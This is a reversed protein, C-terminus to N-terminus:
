GADTNPVITLKLQVNLKQARYFVVDEQEFNTGRVKLDNYAEDLTSGVGCYEECIAIFEETNKPM